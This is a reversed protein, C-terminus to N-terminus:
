PLTSKGYVMMFALSSGLFHVNLFPACVQFALRLIDDGALLERHPLAVVFGQTGM